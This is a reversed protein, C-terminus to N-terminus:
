SILIQFLNNIVKVYDLEESVKALESTLTDVAASAVKHKESLSSLHEKETRYTEVHHDFQSNITKERMAIQDLTKSVDHSVKELTTKTPGKWQKNMTEFHVKMANMHARWDKNDEPLVVKLLPTVREVEMRWEAASIRPQTVKSSFYLYILDIINTRTM